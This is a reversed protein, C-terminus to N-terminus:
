DASLLGEHQMVRRMCSLPMNGAQLFVRHFARDLDLGELQGEAREANAAQLERKLDWLMRNGALYSLPYGREASYWNLEAQVRSPVFGTVAALLNGAAVFPDDSSIDCAVGVDLFDREGSMFFLDIAVRAGIRAIDRKGIFRMEDILEGGYGVDLMWDELYTTWGEHLESAVTLRRVVSPHLSAWALQLHHGPTGEHLMMGPISLETHEPLLQESLTLHVLSTRTGERFSAPAWMAGAPIAAELHKPTREILIDDDPPLPFLDRARIFEILKRHEAQYRELVDELRDNPLEVRYREALWDQLADADTDDPLEYKSVLRARLQEVSTDIDALFSTALTHLGDLSLEIGRLAVLRETQRRGICFDTHTPLTALHAQYDDLAAQATARARTLREADAYQVEAAWAELTDFLSPLGALTEREVAVWRAVPTTLTRRWGDLFAPLAELRSTAADLREAPEHPDNSLLLTLGMGLEDAARPCQQRQTGGNFSYSAEFLERELSLIAMGLDLRQDFGLPEGAADAAAAAAALVQAQALLARAEAQQERAAEPSREPLEGRRQDIGYELCANPDRSVHALYADVFDTFCAAPM